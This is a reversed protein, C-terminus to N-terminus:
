VPIVHIELGYLESLDLGIGILEQDEHNCIWTIHVAKGSGAYYSMTEFAKFLLRTTPMNLEDLRFIVNLTENELFHVEFFSLLANGASSNERKMHGTVSVSNHVPNFKVFRDTPRTAWTQTQQWPYRTSEM